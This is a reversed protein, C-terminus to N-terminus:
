PIISAIVEISRKEQVSLCPVSQIAVLYEDLSHLTRFAQACAHIISSTLTYAHMCHDIFDDTSMNEATLAARLSRSKANRQDNFFAVCANKINEATEQVNTPLYKKGRRPQLM